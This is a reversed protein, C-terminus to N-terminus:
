RDMLSGAKKRLKLRQTKSNTEEKRGLRFRILKDGLCSSLHEATWHLVPWNLTMDMFVAPQQLHHLIRQIEDPSFPKMSDPDAM